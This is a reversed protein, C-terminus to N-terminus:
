KGVITAVADLVLQRQEPEQGDLAARRMAKDLPYFQTKRAVKVTDRIGWPMMLSGDEIMQRMDHTLQMVQDLVRGPIKYGDAECHLRIIQREVEDGPLNFEFFTLRSLEAGGIPNTGVYLPDWHPNVSNLIFSLRHRQVTKGQAQDVVLQRASDYLPRLFEWIDANLNPEDIMIVGPSELATILRGDSWSTVSQGTEPDVTLKSEGLLHWSETGKEVSIRFFPLDMLWALWCGFETKGTGAGGVLLPTEDIMLLEVVADYLFHGHDVYLEPKHAGYTQRPDYGVLQKGDFIPMYVDDFDPNPSKVLRWARIGSAAEVPTVEKDTDFERPDVRHRLMEEEPNFPVKPAGNSLAKGGYIPLLQVNTLNSAGLPSGDIGVGCDAAARTTSGPKILVGKAACMPWDFGFAKRVHPPAIYNECQTCTAPKERSPPRVTVPVAVLAQDYNATGRSGRMSGYDSCQSAIAEATSPDVPQDAQKGILQTKVSCAGPMNKIKFFDSAETAPVYAPCNLCSPTGSTSM